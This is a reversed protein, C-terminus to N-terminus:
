RKEVGCWGGGREEAVSGSAFCFASLSAGATAGAAGDLGTWQQSSGSGCRVATQWRGGLDSNPFVRRAAAHHNRACGGDDGRAM